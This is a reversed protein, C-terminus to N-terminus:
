NRGDSVHDDARPVIELEPHSERLPGLDAPDIRDPVILTKLNPLLRLANLGEASVQTDHVDLVELNWMGSIEYLGKDTIPNGWLSMRRVNGLLGVHDLQDDTIGTAALYLRNVGRVWRLKELLEATIKQKELKIMTPFKDNDLEVEAGAATLEEVTEDRIKWTGEFWPRNPPKSPPPDPIEVAPQQALLERLSQDTPLSQTLTKGIKGTDIRERTREPDREVRLTGPIRWTVHSLGKESGNLFGARTKVLWSDPERFVLFEAEIDGTLVHQLGLAHSALRDGKGVYYKAGAILLEGPHFLVGPVTHVPTEHAHLVNGTETERYTLMGDYEFNALVDGRRDSDAPAGRFHTRVSLDEVEFVYSGPGDESEVQTRHDLHSAIWGDGRGFVCNWIGPSEFKRTRLYEGNAADIVSIQDAGSSGDEGSTLVALIQREDPTLRVQLVAKDSQEYRRLVEGTELDWVRITGGNGDYWSGTSSLFRNGDRTFQVSTFQWPFTDKKEEIQFENLVKASDIDILQLLNGQGVLLRKGDPHFAGVTVYEFKLLQRGTTLDWVASHSKRYGLTARGTLLRCGDPSFAVPYHDAPNLCSTSKPFEIVEGELSPSYLTAQKLEPQSLLHIRWRDPTTMRFDKPDSTVKPLSKPSAAKKEGSPDWLAESRDPYILRVLKGELSIDWVPVPVKLTPTATAVDWVIVDSTYWSLGSGFTIMNRGDDSFKVRKIGNPVLFQQRLTGRELDWLQAVNDSGGTLLLRNDPSLAVAYVRRKAHFLHQREGTAINWVSLQGNDCAVAMLNEDASIELTVLIDDELAFSRIHEGTTKNLLSVTNSAGILVGDERHFRLAQPIRQHELVPRYDRLALGTSVNWLVASDTQNTLLHGSEPDYDIPPQADAIGWRQIWMEREEVARVVVPYFLVILVLLSQAFVKM